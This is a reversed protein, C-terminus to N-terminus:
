TWRTCARRRRIVFALGSGLAFVGLVGLFGAVGTAVRENEIGPLAYDALPADSRHAEDAFSEEAAVRELGDPSSSAFPSLAAALGIALALAVVTFLRM